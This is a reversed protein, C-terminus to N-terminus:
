AATAARHEDRERMADTIRQYSAQLRLFHDKADTGPAVDPHCVRVLRRHAGRVDEASADPALGLEEFDERLAAMVPDVGAAQAAQPGRPEASAAEAPPPLFGKEAVHALRKQQGPPVAIFKLGVEWHGKVFGCRRIWCVRANVVESGTVLYLELQLAADRLVEPRDECRIRAGGASLDVARGLSTKLGSKAPHRPVRRPMSAEAAKSVAGLRNLRPIANWLAM